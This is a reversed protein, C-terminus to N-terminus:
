ICVMTVRWGRRLVFDPESNQRLTPIPRPGRARNLGASFSLAFSRFKLNAGLYNVSVQARFCHLCGLPGRTAM